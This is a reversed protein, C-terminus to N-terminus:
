LLVLRDLKIYNERKIEEKARKIHKDLRKLKLKESKEKSNRNIAPLIKDIQSKMIKDVPEIQNLLQKYQVLRSTIPHLKMSTRRTKFMLYAAINTCYNLIVQHKTRIYDAAPGQSPLKGSSILKSIPHLTTVLENFKSNFDAVIGSFEPSERHFLQVREKLSLKSLDLQVINKVGIDSKADYSDKLGSKTSDISNTTTFTDMFDSEDMETLQKAQILKAEAEEMEAESLEDVDDQQTGKGKVKSHKDNPNGGYFHQRKGGWAGIAEGEDDEDYKGYDLDSGSHPQEKTIKKKNKQKVTPLDDESSGSIAYLEEIETAPRQPKKTTPKYGMKSLLQQEENLELYDIDDYLKDGGDDDSNGSLAPIIAKKKQLSSNGKRKKVM